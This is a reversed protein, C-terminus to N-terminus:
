PRQWSFFSLIQVWGGQSHLGGGGSGATHGEALEKVERHRRKRMQIRPIITTVETASSDLPCHMSVVCHGAYSAYHQTVLNLGTSAVRWPSSWNAQRGKIQTPSFSECIYCFCIMLFIYPFVNKKKKQGFRHAM